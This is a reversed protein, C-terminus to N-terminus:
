WTSRIPSKVMPNGNKPYDAAWQQMNCWLTWVQSGQFRGTITDIALFFGDLTRGVNKGFLRFYMLTKTFERINLPRNTWVQCMNNLTATVVWMVWWRGSNRTWFGLHWERGSTVWLCTGFKCSRISESSIHCWAGLRQLGGELNSTAWDVPVYPVRPEGHFQFLSRNWPRKKSPCYHTKAVLLSCQWLWLFRYTFIIYIYICVLHRQFADSWM